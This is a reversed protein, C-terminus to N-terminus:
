KIAVFYNKNLWNSGQGLWIYQGPLWHLGTQSKPPQKKEANLLHKGWQGDISRTWLFWISWELRVLSSYLPSPPGAWLWGNKLMSYTNKESAMYVELGAFAYPDTLGTWKPIFPCSLGAWLWGYSCSHQGLIPLNWNMLRPETWEVVMM